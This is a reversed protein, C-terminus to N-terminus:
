QTHELVASSEAMTVEHNLMSMSVKRYRRASTVVYATILSRRAVFARMCVYMCSFNESACVHSQFRTM